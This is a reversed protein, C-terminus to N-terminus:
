GFARSDTQTTDRTQEEDRDHECEGDAGGTGVRSRRRTTSLAYARAEWTRGHGAHRFSPAEWPRDRGGCSGQAGRQKEDM